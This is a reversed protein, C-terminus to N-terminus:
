HGDALPVVAPNAGPPLGEGPNRAVLVVQLATNNYLQDVESLAKPRRRFRHDRALLKMLRLHDANCASQAERAITAPELTPDDLKGVAEELCALEAHSARSEEDTLSGSHAPVAAGIGFLLVALLIAARSM